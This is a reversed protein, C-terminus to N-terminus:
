QVEFLFEKFEEIKEHIKNVLEAEYWLEKLQEILNRIRSTWLQVAYVNRKIAAMTVDGIYQTSRAVVRTATDFYDLDDESGESVSDVFDELVRDFIQKIDKSIGVVYRGPTLCGAPGTAFVCEDRKEKKMDRSESTKNRKHSIWSV